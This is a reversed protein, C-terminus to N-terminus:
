KAIVYSIAYGEPSDVTHCEYCMDNVRCITNAVSFSNMGLSLGKGDAKMISEKLTWIKTLDAETKVTEIEDKCFFRKSIKKLDRTTKEIDIGCPVDSIMAVAYDGSHSLSIYIPLPIGPINNLFPKGYQDYDISVPTDMNIFHRKLLKNLAYEVTLSRLIDSEHKLKETKLLREKSVNKELFPRAYENINEIIYDIM